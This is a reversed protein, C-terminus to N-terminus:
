IKKIISILNRKNEFERNEIIKFWNKEFLYRLEDLSFCHYYRVFEGIKINFDSSWFKNTSWEVKLNSYRKINLESELAWNTLFIMWGSELKKYAKKIVML